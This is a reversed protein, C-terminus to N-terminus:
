AARDRVEQEAERCAREVAALLPTPDMRNALMMQVTRGLTAMAQKTQRNVLHRVRESM